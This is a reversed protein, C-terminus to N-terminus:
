TYKRMAYLGVLPIMSYMDPGCKATMFWHPEGYLYSIQM